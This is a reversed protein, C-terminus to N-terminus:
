LATGKGSGSISNLPVRFLPSMQCCVEVLLLSMFDNMTEAHVTYTGERGDRTCACALKSNHGIEGQSGKGDRMNLVRPIAHM